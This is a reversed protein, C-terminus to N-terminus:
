RVLIKKTNDGVTVLYVGPASVPIEMDATTTGDYLLCGTIDSVTVNLGEASSILIKGNESRIISSSTDVSEVSAELDPIINCRDWNPSSIYAEYSNSPVHVTVDSDSFSFANDDCIPPVPARLYIDYAVYCGMSPNFANYDIYETTSPLTIRMPENLYIGSAFFTFDPIVKVGEPIVVNNLVHCHSFAFSDITRLTSPLSLRTLNNCGGIGDDLITEIGEPVTLETLSKCSAFMEATIVKIHGPFQVKTLARDRSFKGNFIEVTEPIYAEELNYCDPFGGYIYKVSSPIEVNTLKSFLFASEAITNVTNPITYSGVKTQPFGILIKMDKSFLVNDKASFYKNEPDVEIIELQSMAELPNCYPDDPAQRWELSKPFRIKKIGTGWFAQGIFEIGEPLTIETLPCAGFAMNQLCKIGQPLTVSTLKCGDFCGGDIKELGDPLSIETIDKRYRFLSEGLVKVYEPIVIPGKKGKPWAVLTSGDKNFLLGDKASFCNNNTDVTISELNEAYNFALNFVMTISAPIHVSLLEDCNRFAYSNIWRVPYVTGNYTAKDPIILHGSYPAEPNEALRVTNDLLIFCFDGDKFKVVEASYICTSVFLGILTLLIRLKKFIKM